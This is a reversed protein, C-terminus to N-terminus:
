LSWCVCNDSLTAKLISTALIDQQQLTSKNQLSTAGLIRAAHWTHTERDGHRETTERDRQTKTKTEREREKEREREREREGERRFSIKGAEVWMHVIKMKGLFGGEEDDHNRNVLAM